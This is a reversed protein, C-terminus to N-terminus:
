PGCRRHHLPRPYDHLKTEITIKFSPQSIVADPISYDEKDLETESPPHAPKQNSEQLTFSIEPDINEPLISTKLFTFFLDPSYSYLRSLLLLANATHVNEKGHYRQFYHIKM